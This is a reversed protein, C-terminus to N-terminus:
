VNYLLYTHQQLCLPSNKTQQYPMPACLLMSYHKSENFGVEFHKPLLKPFFINFSQIFDFLKDLHQYGEPPRRAFYEDYTVTIVFSVM